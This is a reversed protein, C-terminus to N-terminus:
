MLPFTVVRPTEKTQLGVKFVDNGLRFPNTTPISNPVDAALGEGSGLRIEVAAQAEDDADREGEDPTEDKCDQREDVDPDDHGEDLEAEVHEM